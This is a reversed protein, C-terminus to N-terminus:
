KTVTKETKLRLRYGFMGCYGFGILDWRFWGVMDQKGKGELGCVFGIDEKLSALSERADRLSSGRVLLWNKTPTSLRYWTTYWRTFEINMRLIVVVSKLSKFKFKPKLQAKRRANREIEFNSVKKERQIQDDIRSACPRCPNKKEGKANPKEKQKEISDLELLPTTNYSKPEFAQSTCLFIFQRVSIQPLQNPNSKKPEHELKLANSNKKKIPLNVKKIQHWKNNNNKTTVYAKLTSVIYVTQWM